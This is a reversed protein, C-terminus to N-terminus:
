SALAGQYLMEDAVFEGIVEDLASWNTFEHNRSTDTSAGAERAVKKMMLRLFFDYKLYMLSGAVAIVRTPHWHTETLFSDIMSKVDAAAQRRREEPAASDQAGAQSLSVSLFATPLQQLDQRYNKVFKVMEREHEGYHVSAALIASSYGNLCFDEPLRCVNIVDGQLGRRRLQVSLFEAIRQTQGERTAYIILVPEM